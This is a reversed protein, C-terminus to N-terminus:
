PHRKRKIRKASQPLNDEDVHENLETKFDLRPTFRLPGDWLFKSAARLLEHKEKEQMTSAKSTAGALLKAFTVIQFIVHANRRTQFMINRFFSKLQSHFAENQTTGYMVDLDPHSSVFQAFNQLYGLQGPSTAHVLSALVTTKGDIIRQMM